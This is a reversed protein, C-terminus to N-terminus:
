INSSTTMPSM